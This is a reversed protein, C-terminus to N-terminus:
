AKSHAFFIKNSIRWNGDHRVLLFFDTYRTGRWNLAELRAMATNGEHDIAVTRAVLGTAPGNKEILDCFEKVSWDVPKGGYTGQVRANEAFARRMESGQGTRAADVYRQLAAAIAEYTAYSEAEEAPSIAKSM